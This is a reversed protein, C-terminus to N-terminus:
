YVQLSSKGLTLYVQLSSKGSPRCASKSKTRKCKPPAEKSLPQKTTAKEVEKSLPQHGEGGGEITAPPRRWRRRRRSCHSSPPKAARCPGLSCNHKQKNGNLDMTRLHIPSFWLSYAVFCIILSCFMYNFLTHPYVYFLVNGM